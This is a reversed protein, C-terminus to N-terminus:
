REYATLAISRSRIIADRLSQLSRSTSFQWPALIYSISQLLAGLTV